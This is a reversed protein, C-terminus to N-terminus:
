NYTKLCAELIKMLHIDDEENNWKPKLGSKCGISSYLFVAFLILGIPRIM